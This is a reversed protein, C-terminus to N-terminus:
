LRSRLTRRKSVYHNFQDKNYNNYYGKKELELSADDLKTIKQIFIMTWEDHFGLLWIDKGRKNLSHNLGEVAGELYDLGFPNRVSYVIVVDKEGDFKEIETNVIDLFETHDAEVFSVKDNVFTTKAYPCPSLNNFQESVRSLQGFAWDKIKEQITM